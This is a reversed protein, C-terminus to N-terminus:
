IPGSVSARRRGRLPHAVHLHLNSGSRLFYAPAIPQTCAAELRTRGPVRGRGTEICHGIPLTHWQGEHEQGYFRSWWLVKERPAKGGSEAFVRSFGRTGHNPNLWEVKM